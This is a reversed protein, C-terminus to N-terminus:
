VLDVGQRLLQVRLTQSDWEAESIELWQYNAEAIIMNKLVSLPFNEPPGGSRMEFLELWPM